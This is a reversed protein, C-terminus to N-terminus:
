VSVRLGEKSWRLTAALSLYFYIWAISPLAFYYSGDFAASLFVLSTLSAMLLLWWNARRSFALNLSAGNVPKGHLLYLHALAWALLILFIPPVGMLPIGLSDAWHPAEGRAVSTTLDAVFAACTGVPLGVALATFMAGSNPSRVRRHFSFFLASLSFIIGTVARDEILYKNTLMETRLEFYKKSDGHKMEGYRRHFEQTDKYPSQTASHLLAAISLVLVFAFFLAFRNM